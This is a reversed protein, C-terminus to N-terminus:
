WFVAPSLAIKALQLDDRMAVIYIKKTAYEKPIALLIWNRSRDRMMPTHIVNGEDDHLAIDLMRGLAEKTEGQVMEVRCVSFLSETIPMWRDGTSPTQGFVLGGDSFASMPAPGITIQVRSDGDNITEMQDRDAGYGVLLRAIDLAGNQIALELPTTGDSNKTNVDAGKDLLYRAYKALGKRAAYHLLTSSDSSSNELDVGAKVLLDAIDTHDNEVAVELPSSGDEAQQNADAKNSLLFQVIPAYGQRAAHYLATMGLADVADVNAKQSLLFEVHALDGKMAAIHLQTRGDKDKAEIDLSNSLLAQARADRRNGVALSGSRAGDTILATEESAIWKVEAGFAEAVFRVPVFTRGNRSEASASMTKTEGNVTATKSGAKLSVIQEGRKATIGGTASDFSVEAGLWEFIARMPVMVAGKSQYAPADTKIPECMLAPASVLTLAMMLFLVNRM